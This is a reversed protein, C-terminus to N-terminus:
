PLWNGAKHYLLYWEERTLRIDSAKATDAIRSPTMSGLIVQMQAPHTLIWAAAIAMPNSNYKEALQNIAENLEPFDPNNLFVPRPEQKSSQYPSWAQITMDRMRSYELIGGDRDYGMGERRNVFFGQDLMGTHGLGFQLQNAILKHNVSKQLFEVQFPNFNSVGFYRVKGEFYLQNFAEAVVEPEMLTDPRHLLLVDVYETKLRKLSGEVSAVIHEHSFDYRTFDPQKNRIGCKTQIIISERKIGADQCAQAFIEESRGGGYIDAHDFFDIGNDVATQVIAAAEKPGQGSIRMIGLSIESAMLGVKGLDIKNM